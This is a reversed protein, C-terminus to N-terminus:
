FRLNLTLQLTDLELQDDSRRLDTGSANVLLFPNTAPATGRSTRVITDEDDIRTRLYELGMAAKGWLSNAMQNLTRVNKVKYQMRIQLHDHLNEGVGPLEQIQKIDFKKLM